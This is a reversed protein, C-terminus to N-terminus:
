VVLFKVSIGDKLRIHNFGEEGEKGWVEGDMTMGGEFEIEVEKAVGNFSKPLVKRGLALARFHRICTWVDESTTLFYFGGDKLEGLFPKAFLISRKFSAATALIIKDYPYEEGDIKIRASIPKIFKRAEKRGIVFGAIQSGMIELAKQPGTGMKYYKLAARWIVGCGFMFCFMEGEFMNSVAKMARITKKRENPIENISNLNGIFYKIRSFITGPTQEPLVNKHLVNMSGGKIPIILPFEEDQWFRKLADVVYKYTGDGGVVAIVNVKDDKLTSMLSMFEGVSSTEFVDISNRPRGGRELIRITRSKTFLGLRAKRANANIIVATKIM